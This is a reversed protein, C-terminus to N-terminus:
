IDALEAIEKEIVIESLPDDADSIPDANSESSPDAAPNSSYRTLSKQYFLAGWHASYYLTAIVISTPLTLLALFGGGGFFLTKELFTKHSDYIINVKKVLALVKKDFILGIVFGLTFLNPHLYFLAIQRFIILAVRTIMLCRSTILKPIGGAIVGLLSHNGYSRIAEIM